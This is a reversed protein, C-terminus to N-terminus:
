VMINFEYEYKKYVIINYTIYFVFYNFSSEAYMFIIQLM